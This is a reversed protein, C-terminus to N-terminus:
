ELNTVLVFIELQVTNVQIVMESCKDASTGRELLLKAKTTKSSIFPSLFFALQSRLKGNIPTYPVTCNPSNATIEYVQILNKVTNFIKM